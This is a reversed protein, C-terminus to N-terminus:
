TLDERRLLQLMDDGTTEDALRLEDWGRRFTEFEEDDLPPVYSAISMDPMHWGIQHAIKAAVAITVWIPFHTMDYSDPPKVMDEGRIEKLYSTVQRGLAAADDLGVRDLLGWMNDLRLRRPEINPNVFAHFRSTSGM